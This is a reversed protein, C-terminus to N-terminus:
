ADPVDTKSVKLKRRAFYLLAGFILAILGSWFTKFKDWVVSGLHFIGDAVVKKTNVSVYVNLPAAVQPLPTGACDESKYVNIEASVRLTGTRKPTIQFRVSSGKPSMKICRESPSVEFEPAYPTVLAYDGDQASVTSEDTVMGEGFNPVIDHSGIWVVLEGPEDKFISDRAALEVKYEDPSTLNDETITGYEKIDITPLDNIEDVTGPDKNTNSHSTEQKVAPGCSWLTFLLFICLVTKPLNSNFIFHM